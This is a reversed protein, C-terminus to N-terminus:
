HNGGKFITTSIPWVPTALSHKSARNKKRFLLRCDRHLGEVLSHSLAAILLM